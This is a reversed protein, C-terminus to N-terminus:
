NSRTPNLKFCKESVDKFPFYIRTTASELLPTALCNRPYPWRCMKTPVIM